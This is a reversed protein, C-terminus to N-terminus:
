KKLLDQIDELPSIVKVLDKHTVHLYRLTTKIDNHGLLKQIFVVDIGKDLLHTAFSHRLLHMNGAQQIGTREKALQLVHQISRESLHGKIGEGEFLYDKPKYQKYYERLVILVAPSLSVVRDKKGKGNEILLLRRKGDVHRLRVSVAESVRLGCAYALMVIAKHKKNEIANILAAVQEKNLVKPLLLRKKPRPIDWYFKEGKLVQEFYFKVANVRSHITNETLKQVTHCWVFYDRLRERSLSSAPVKGLTQLLQAFENRYTVTTSRSYGKLQLEQVLASLAQANEASIKNLTQASATKVEMKFRARYTENDPVYWCKMTESWAAGPLAKVREGLVKDYAFVIKIVAKDKHAACEFCVPKRENMTRNIFALIFCRWLMVFCILIYRGSHMQQLGGCAM